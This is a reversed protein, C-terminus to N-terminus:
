EGQRGLNYLAIKIRNIVRRYCSPRYFDRFRQNIELSSGIDSPSLVDRGLEVSYKGSSKMHTGSGDTGLNRVFSRVPYVNTMGLNFCSQNFRVAWSAIKGQQQKLLMVPLDAGQQTLRARLKKDSIFCNFDQVQWDVKQWRNRWTAWGWSNIRPFLFSAHAYDTPMQFPPCYGAVSFIRDDDKYQLLGENMFNLFYPATELDDELVICAEYISLVESVGDIISASLGKNCESTIIQVSKFGEIAGLIARVAQVLVEDTTSAPGDSFVILATDAAGENAALASLTEKVHDPRNYCFLVVPHQM